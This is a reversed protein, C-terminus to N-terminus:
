TLMRNANGCISYNVVMEEAEIYSQQNVDIASIM